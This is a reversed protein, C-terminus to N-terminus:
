KLGALKPETSALEALREAEEKWAVYQRECWARREELQAIWREQSEITEAHQANERRLSEYQDSLWSKAQELETIWARQQGVVDELREYERKFGIYQSELWDKGTQLERVWSEQEKILSELQTVKSGLRDCQASLWRRGEEQDWWGKVLRSLEEQLRSLRQIRNDDFSPLALALRDPYLRAMRMAVGARRGIEFVDAAESFGFPLPAAETGWINPWDGSFARKVHELARVWWACAEDVQGDHLEVLGALYCADVTKSAILPSFRVFDYSACRDFWRKAAARDGTDLAILGALFTLSINWRLDIPADGSAGIQREIDSCIEALEQATGGALYRQYGIVCLAAGHDPAGVPYRSRISESIRALLEDRRARYGRTVIAHQVWPCRYQTEFAAINQATARQESFIREIYPSECIPDKMGVVIWWEAADRDELRRASPPVSRIQRTSGPNRTGGGATQVFLLETDLPPVFPELLADLEAGAEVEASLVVRGGPRLVRRTEAFVEGLSGSSVLSESVVIVDASEDDVPLASGAAECVSLTPAAIAYMAEAYARAAASEELAIVREATSGSSLIYSGFGTRAGWDIVVDHPRILDLVTMYRAVAADPRRGAERLMDREAAPLARLREAPFRANLEHAIPELAVAFPVRENDLASYSTVVQYLPHRRFARALAAQVWLTRLHDETGGFPGANPPLDEGTAILILARPNLDHLRSMLSDLVDGNPPEAPVLVIVGAIGASETRDAPPLASLVERGRARLERRIVMAGSKSAGAPVGTHDLVAVMGPPIIGGVAPILSKLFLSHDAM